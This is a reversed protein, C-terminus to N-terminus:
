EDDSEVSGTTDDDPDEIHQAIIKELRRIIADGQSNRKDGAGLTRFNAPEYNKNATIKGIYWKVATKIRRHEIWSCIALGLSGSLKGYKKPIKHTISDVEDDLVEFYDDFFEEVKELNTPQMALHLHNRIYSTNLCSRDNLQLAFLAGLLDALGGRAKGVGVKGFYKKINTNHRQYFETYFRGQPTTSLSSYFKQNDTLPKGSNIRQFIIIRDEMTIDTENYIDCQVQYTLFTMREAETMEEYKKLSGNINAAFDGAKYYYLTTIRQQGDEIDYSIQRQEDTKRILMVSPMPYGKMVTDILDQQQPLKWIYHRQHPAIGYRTTTTTTQEQSPLDDNGRPRFHSIIEGIPRTILERIIPMTKFPVM